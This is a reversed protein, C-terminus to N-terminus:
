RVERVLRFGTCPNRADAALPARASLSLRIAPDAYCGGRVVRTGPEGQERASGDAPAGSFTPSWADEVWERVNSVMLMLHWANANFRMSRPAPATLTADMSFYADTPSLTSGSPYLGTQGARAAYEWEAETPLRYRQGTARSLWRAYDRADHWSVNVVPDDARAWPQPPCATGSSRCYREFQSQSVEYVSMAFPHALRVRHVPGAQAVSGNGMMFSGRPIVALLPGPKGSALFDQCFNLRIRSLAASCPPYKRPRSARGAAQGAALAADGRPAVGPSSAAAGAAAPRVAAAGARPPPPPAPAAPMQGALRATGSKETPSPAGAPAARSGAGSQARPQAQPQAHDKRPAGGSGAQVPEDPTALDIGLTVALAALPSSDATLPAGALAEQERLRSRVSQVFTDFWPANRAAELQSPGAELLAENLAVLRADSWDPHEILPELLARLPSAQQGAGAAAPTPAQRSHHRWMWFVGALALLVAVVLGALMGLGSRAASAGGGRGAGSPSGPAAPPATSVPARAPSPTPEAPQAAARPQTLEASPATARPQTADAARAAAPAALADLLPARLRRWAERSLRGELHDRALARLRDATEASM